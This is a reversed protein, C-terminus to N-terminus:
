KKRGVVIFSNRGYFKPPPIYGKLLIRVPWTFTNRVFKWMSALMSNSASICFGYHLMEIDSKEFLGNLSERSYLVLHHSPSFSKWDKGYKSFYKGDVAPSTMVVYDGHDLAMEQLFLHPEAIHELVQLAVITKKKLGQLDDMGIVPINKSGLVSVAIESEEIAYVNNVSLMEQALQLFSGDGAGIDVLHSDPELGASKVIQHLYDRYSGLQHSYDPLKDIVEYYDKVSEIGKNQYVVGCASCQVYFEHSAANSDIGDCVPCQEMGHQSKMQESQSSM